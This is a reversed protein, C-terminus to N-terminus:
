DYKTRIISETYLFKVFKFLHQEQTQSSKTRHRFSIIFLKGPIRLVLNRIYQLKM